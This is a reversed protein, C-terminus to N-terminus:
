VDEVANNQDQILDYKILELTGIVSPFPMLDGHEIITEYIKEYLNQVRDSTRGSGVFPTLSTKQDVFDTRLYTQLRLIENVTRRGIGPVRSLTYETLDMFQNINTVGLEILGGKARTSLELEDIFRNTM